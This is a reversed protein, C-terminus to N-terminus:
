LNVKLICHILEECHSLKLINMLLHTVVQRMVTQSFGQKLTTTLYTGNKKLCKGEMRPHSNALTKAIINKLIKTSKEAFM